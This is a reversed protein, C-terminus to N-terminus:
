QYKRTQALILLSSAILTQPDIKRSSTLESIVIQAMAIDGIVYPNLQILLSRQEGPPM